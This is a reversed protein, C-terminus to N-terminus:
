PLVPTLDIFVRLGSEAYISAGAAPDRVPRGFATAFASSLLRFTQLGMPTFPDFVGQALNASCSVRLDNEDDPANPPLPYLTTIDRSQVIWLKGARDIAWEIDQPRGFHEEIRAGLAAIERLQADSLIDGRRELVEGSRTNVIFHDPNVAGSVLQEGLGRVAEIAARQRRGTIPDATFLVGASDADIMRHVVVALRLGRAPVDHTQRYAVARDNWLSAWCKRVADLVADEGAVGLVTDQQGAFSADPLDEATASSRVAVAPAGLTRYAERVANAIGAPVPSAALRVRATAPTEGTVGAAEAALAYAATTIVFGDPVPFGARRLEGLNAGKGGAEPLDATTLEDLSRVLM